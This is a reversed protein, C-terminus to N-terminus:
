VWNTFSYLCVGHKDKIEPIDSLMRIIFFKVKDLEHLYHYQLSLGDEEKGENIIKGLVAFDGSIGDYIFDLNLEEAKEEIIEHLEENDNLENIINVGVMVYHRQRIGM